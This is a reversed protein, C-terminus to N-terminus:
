PTGQWMQINEPENWIEWYTIKYNFGDAWGETYHTIIHECIRAWKAYDKPPNDLLAQNRM